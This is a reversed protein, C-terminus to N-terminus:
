HYKAKATGKYYVRAGGGRMNRPQPILPCYDDGIEGKGRLWLAVIKNDKVGCLLQILVSYM